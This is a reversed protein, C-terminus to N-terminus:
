FGGNVALDKGTINDILMMNDVTLGASTNATGVLSLKNLGVVPRIQMSFNVINYNTPKMSFIDVDNWRIVGQSYSM